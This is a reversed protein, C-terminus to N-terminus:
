AVTMTGTMGSEKHGAISCVLDYDGPALGSVDLQATGGPDIDPTAAGGEISLNHPVAGSNTVTISTTGAPVQVDSPSIMFDALDVTVAAAAGGGGAASRDDEAARAALAVAFMSALFAFVAIFLAGLAITETNLGPRKRPAPMTGAASDPASPSAPTPTEVTSM